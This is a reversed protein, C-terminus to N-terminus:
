ATKKKRGNGPVRRTMKPEVSMIHLMRLSALSPKRLGIEWSRVTKVSVKLFRALAEQSKGRKQRVKVIEAPTMDPPPDQFEWTRLAIEGRMFRIGEQLGTALRTFLDPEKTKKKM